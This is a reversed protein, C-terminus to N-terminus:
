PLASRDQRNGGVEGFHHIPAIERRADGALIPRAIDPMAKGVDFLTALKELEAGPHIELSRQFIERRIEGVLDGVILNLPGGLLQRTSSQIVPPQPKM